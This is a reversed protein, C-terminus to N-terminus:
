NGGFAIVYILNTASTGISTVGCKIAFGSSTVSNPDVTIQSTALSGVSLGLPNVANTAAVAQVIIVANPMPAGFTVNILNAHAAPAPANTIAFWIIMKTDTQHGDKSFNCSINTIAATVTPQGANTLGGFFHAYIAGANTLNGTSSSNAALVTLANNTPQPAFGLATGVSSANLVQNSISNVLTPNNTKISIKYGTTDFDLPNFSNFSPTAGFVTLSLLSLIFTLLTKM